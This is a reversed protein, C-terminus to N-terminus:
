LSIGNAIIGNGKPNTEDNIQILNDDHNKEKNPSDDIIISDKQNGNIQIDGVLDTM